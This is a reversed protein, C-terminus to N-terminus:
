ANSEGGSPTTLDAAARLEPEEAADAVVRNRGAEKARYLAEDARGLLQDLWGSSLPVGAAVGFSATVRVPGALCQVPELELTARLREALALAGELGTDPLLAAFEEGGWRCFFDSGRLGEALRKASERLVADGAAHGFRDNVAKFHDLDIIIAALSTGKRSARISEHRANEFFRRRNDIGTLEDTSALERLKALLREDETVDSLVLVTGVTKGGPGKAPLARVSWYADAGEAAGGGLGAVRFSLRGKGELALAALETREPMIEALSRGACADDLCFARRAAQNASELLGKGDLVIVADDMAEFVAERAAPALGSITHRMYELSFLAGIPLLTFSTPDLGWPVLDALMALYGAVPVLAAVLVLRAQKRLGPAARFAAAGLFAFGTSLALATWATNVIFWPGPEFGFVPFPGDSRVWAEAFVLPVVRGALAISSGALPPIALLAAALIGPNRGKAYGAAFLLWFYPVWPIFVFELRIWGLMSPLSTSVLELAYGFGFAASTALLLALPASCCARRQLLIYGALFVSIGSAAMLATSLWQNTDM